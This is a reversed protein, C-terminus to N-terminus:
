PLPMDCLTHMMLKRIELIDHMKRCYERYLQQSKDVWIDIMYPNCLANTSGALDRDMAQLLYQQHLTALQEGILIADM